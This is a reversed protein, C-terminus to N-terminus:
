PGHGHLIHGMKTQRNLGIFATSGASGGHCREGQQSLRVSTHRDGIRTDDRQICPYLASRVYRTNGGNIQSYKVAFFNRVASRVGQGDVSLRRVWQLLVVASGM